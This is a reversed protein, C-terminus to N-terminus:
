AGHRATEELTVALSASFWRFFRALATTMRKPAGPVPLDKGPAQDWSVARDIVVQVRGNPM